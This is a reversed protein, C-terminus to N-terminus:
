NMDEITQIEILPGVLPRVSRGVSPGVLPRVSRGVSPGVSWRVSLAEYLSALVCRFVLNLDGQIEFFFFYKKESLYM